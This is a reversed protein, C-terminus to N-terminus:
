LLGDVDALSIGLRTPIHYIMVLSVKLLKKKLLTTGDMCARLSALLSCARLTSYSSPVLVTSPVIGGDVATGTSYQIM